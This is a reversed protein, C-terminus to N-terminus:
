GRRLASLRSRYTAALSLDGLADAAQARLELSTALYMAHVLSKSDFVDLVAIARRQQGRALLVRALALREAAMSLAFDWESAPRGVSLLAVFQSVAANTDGRALTAHAQISRARVTDDAKSATGELALIRSAVAFAAEHRRETTLRLGLLWCRYASGECRTYDMGYERADAAAVSDARSRFVGLVAADFLYLSAGAGWRAISADILREAEASRNQALLMGQRAVLAPWRRADADATAATDGAIIADFGAAACARQKGGTSLALSAMILPTPRERVLKRWDTAAVGRRVCGDMIEVDGALTSDPKAALFRALLPAARSTDGQRLRVEILHFLPNTASSDFRFAHELAQAELSDTSGELPLLHAYVEGLQLWVFASTSDMTLARRLNAIASDARGLLFHQYGLAFAAHRPTLRSRLAAAILAASGQAHHNWTAAQAGRIAALGFASDAAVAQAFEAEAVDLQVRRFASEGLLFHAVAAPSRAAWESVVDPVGTKILRPLLQTTALLGARWTEQVTATARPRAVVSDGAVDRLELFVDASDGRMAIRGTLTYASRQQRALATGEAATMSRINERGAANLLQWGDIWRLPGAGDVASGIMTAVDEGTSKSGKWDPPLVLPYVMVRNADLAAGATSTARWVSGAAVLGLTVVAAMAVRRRSRSRAALLSSVGTVPMHAARVIEDRFEGASAHRDTPVKALARMIASELAEPVTQRVTRLSPPTDVAHRAMIAQASGGTFPPSGALSEYLVCALAYLDARGDLRDGTAQEPSMYTVTGLAIGSDTIREAGTVDLARAVGFDAIVAHGQSLLINAPKIDRHVFGRAHAYHLGDAVEAILRVADEVPLQSERKLLHALSEGEVFPMVYFPLGNAEGSDLLPLIHPHQLSATIQVERTFRMGGFSSVLERRLVKIAVHSGHRLDRAMYVTAFGGRGVESLIEYRDSLAETVADQEDTVVDRPIASQLMGAALEDTWITLPAAAM